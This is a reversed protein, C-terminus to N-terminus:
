QPDHTLDMKARAKGQAVPNVAELHSPNHLLSVNMLRQKDFKKTVSQAIHSAVDCWGDMGAPIHSAGKVKAFFASNNGVIVIL